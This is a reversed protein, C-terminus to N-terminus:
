KKKMLPHERIARRYCEASTLSPKHEQVLVAGIAEGSADCEIVFMKSFDLLALVPTTTMAKKLLIFKAEATESWHFADKKLLATLPAVIQGYGRVFKRYYGTLRLFGHLAKITTPRPWDIMCQIKRPDAAVGDKSVIPGLYEVQSSAFSCKSWKVFMHNKQLIGFAEQLHALHDNWTRGYVLIDDFFVLVFKHLYRRFIDNMLSQFTSPANTLGFPM